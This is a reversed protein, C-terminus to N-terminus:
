PPGWEKQVEEYSTTEGDGQKQEEGYIAAKSGEQKFGRKEEFIALGQLLRAVM